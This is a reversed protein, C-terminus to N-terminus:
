NKEAAKITGDIAYVREVATNYLRMVASADRDMLKQADGNNLLKKGDEDSLVTAVTRAILAQSSPEGNLRQHAVTIDHWEEFSPHRFYVTGLGEVEVTVPPRVALRGLLDDLKMPM